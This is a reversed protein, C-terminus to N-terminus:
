QLQKSVIVLTADDPYSKVTFGSDREVELAKQQLRSEVSELTKVGQAKAYAAAHNLLTWGVGRDKFDARVAVAVEARERSPDIAVLASGVPTGDDSFALFDETLKHDVDLMTAIQDDSVKLVGTLFRFRLDERTVNDFLDKLLPGDDRGVPRLSLSLGSRTILKTSTTADPM